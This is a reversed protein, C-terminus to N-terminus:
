STKKNTNISDNNRELTATMAKMRGKNEREMDTGKRNRTATSAKTRKRNHERSSALCHKQQQRTM